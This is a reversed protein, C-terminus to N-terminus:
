LVELMLIEDCKYKALEYSPIDKGICWYYCVTSRGNPLNHVVFSRRLGCNTCFQIGTFNSNDQWSHDINM